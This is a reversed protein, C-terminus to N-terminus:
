LCARYKLGWREYHLSLSMKELRWIKITLNIAFACFISLIKASNTLFTCSLHLDVERALDADYRLVVKGVVEALATEYICAEFRPLCWVDSDPLSCSSPSSIYQQTPIISVLHQPM